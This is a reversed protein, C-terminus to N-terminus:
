VDAGTRAQMLPPQIWVNQAGTRLDTGPIIPVPFGVLQGTSWGYVFLISLTFSTLWGQHGPSNLQKPGVTEDLKMRPRSGFEDVALRGSRQAAKTTKNAGGSVLLVVASSHSPCRRESPRNQLASPCSKPTRLRCSKNSVM